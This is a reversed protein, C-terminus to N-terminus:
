SAAEAPQTVLLGALHRAQPAELDFVIRLDGDAAILRRGNDRLMEIHLSTYVARYSMVGCSDAYFVFRTPIIPKDSM